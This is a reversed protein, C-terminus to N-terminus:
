EHMATFYKQQYFGAMYNCIECSGTSGRRSFDAAGISWSRRIGKGCEDALQLQRSEAFAPLFTEDVQHLSLLLLDFRIILVNITWPGNYLAFYKSIMEFLVM